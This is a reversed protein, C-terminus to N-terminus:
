VIKSFFYDISKKVHLQEEPPIQSFISFGSNILDTYLKLKENSENKTEKQYPSDIKLYYYSFIKSLSEKHRDVENEEIVNLFEVLFAFSSNVLLANYKETISSTHNDSRKQYELYIDLYYRRQWKTILELERRSNVYKFFVLDYFSHSNYLESLTRITDTVGFDTFNELFHNKEITSGLKLFYFDLYRKWGRNKIKIILSSSDNTYNMM